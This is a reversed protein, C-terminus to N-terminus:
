EPGNSGTGPLPDKTKDDEPDAATQEVGENEVEAKAAEIKEVAAATEGAKIHSKAAELLDIISQKKVENM